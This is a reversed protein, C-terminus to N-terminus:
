HNLLPFQPTTTYTVVSVFSSLSSVDASSVSIEFSCVSISALTYWDFGSKFVEGTGSYWWWWWWCCCWGSTADWNGPSGMKWPRPKWCDEAVRVGGAVTKTRGICGSRWVCSIEFMVPHTCVCAGNIYLLEITLLGHGLYALAPSEHGEWSSPSRNFALSHTRPPEVLLLLM